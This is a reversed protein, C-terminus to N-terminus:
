CYTGPDAPPASRRRAFAGLSQAITAHAFWPFRLHRYLYEGLFMLVVAPLLLLNAFLSWVRLPAFAFLLVSTASAALLFLTWMLTINRTYAVIAPPLTGHVGRALRTLLPERGPRLTRGFMWALALCIVLQLVLPLARALAPVGAALALVGAAALGATLGSAPSRRWGVWVLAGAPPALAVLAAGASGSARTMAWHVVAQYAIVALLGAGLRLWPAGRAESPVTSSSM